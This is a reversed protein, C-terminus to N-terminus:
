IVTGVKFIPLYMAIILGGILVGLIIMILPELLHSLTTFLYEIDNEYIDAIKEFMSSLLGTEEGIKVMQIFAAPFFSNTQMSCYLSQGNSIALHLKLIAHLYAQNHSADSILKLADTIPIGSAFTISLSRAMRALMIKKLIIGILPLKIVYYDFFQKLPLSKKRYHNLIFIAALPFISIWYYRNMWDSFTLIAQTFPPLAHETSQFLEAFRPIICTIMMLSISISVLFLVLPYFLAQKIKKRLNLASEKNKAIYKLQTDLTGSYEGVQILHCTLRDFYHPFKKLGDSLKKGQEIETKIKQIFLQISQKEQSKQVIDCAQLLPIGSSVLAAFQRFFLVM